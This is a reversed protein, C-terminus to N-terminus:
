APLKALLRELAATFAQPREVMPVHGAEIILEVAADPRLRRVAAVLRPPVTRDREGWVVGLPMAVEELLRALCGDGIAALAETTRAAGASARVMRRALGPAVAAGDAAAGALLLRRGWGFDALPELARRVALLPEAGLAFVRGLPAPVVGLGAPAVLVLRRVTTAHEVAVAAAVAAGLSHGALDFPGHVGHDALGSSIRAAVRQLDFGPGVPPSEGFGPVDLTHVSRHRALGPAVLDWIWRTTALGHILVLPPRGAVGDSSWSEVALLAGV